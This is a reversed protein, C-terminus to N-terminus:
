PLVASIAASRNNGENSERVRCHNETFEDGSCSDATARLSVKGHVSPHFRLRGTFTVSKGALLLADTSPYWLSSEGAVTFAVVFSGAGATYEVSVKFPAAGSQGQNKVTVRLPVEAAGKVTEAPGTTQIDTVVLDPLQLRIEPRVQLRDGLDLKPRQGLASLPAAIFIMGIFLTMIRIKM